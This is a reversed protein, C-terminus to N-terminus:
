RTTRRAGIRIIKTNPPFREFADPKWESASTQFRIRAQHYAPMRPPQEYGLIFKYGTHGAWKELAPELLRRTKRLDLPAPSAQESETEFNPNDQFMIFEPLKKKKHLTIQTLLPLDLTSSIRDADTISLLAYIQMDAMMGHLRLGFVWTLTSKKTDLAIHEFLEPVQELEEVARQFFRANDAKPACGLSRFKALPRHFGRCATEMWTGGTVWGEREQEQEYVMALLLKQARPGLKFHKTWEVASQSLRFKGNSM